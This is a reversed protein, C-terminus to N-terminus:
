KYNWYQIETVQFNLIKGDFYERDEVVGPNDKSFVTIHKGSSNFPLKISHIKYTENTDFELFEGEGILVTIDNCNNLKMMYDETFGM